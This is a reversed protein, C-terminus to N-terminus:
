VEIEFQCCEEKITPQNMMSRDCEDESDSGSEIDTEYGSNNNQTLNHVQKKMHRDRSVYQNMQMFITDPGHFSEKMRAGFIDIPKAKLCAIVKKM